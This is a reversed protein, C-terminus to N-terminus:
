IYKKHEVEIKASTFSGFIRTNGTLFLFILNSKNNIKAKLTNLNLGDRSKRFLLKIKNIKVRSSLLNKLKELEVENKIILSDIHINQTKFQGFSKINNILNEFYENEINFEIINNNNLKYSIINENIM